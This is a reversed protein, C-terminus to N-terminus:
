SVLEAVAAVTKNVEELTNYHTPGVRVVGDEIPINLQQVVEYAYNHGNWVFINRDALGKAITQPDIRNHTFSVTPVREKLQNHGTAGYITIGDIAMLGDILAKTIDEEYQLSADMAMEIKKRRSANKDAGVEEGVWAYYDITATLGALLEIAPTGTEFKSPIETPACRVKYAHMNELLDRRGWLVGLHPGFFKYSSCVLFDCGLEQVSTLGHPAYQVADVYVLAGVEKAAATLSKVDNIMGTMNSAYNLALLKTKDSLLAKLDNVEIKWSDTSFELWKIVCGKDAAIELWPSVNGEHDMRTVIIEDGPKFDRAISRSMHFGLNTATQGIVIEGADDTGLFDAMAQHADEVVKGSYDSTRFMGGLNANAYVFAHSVADVVDQPVQTGAPNDFYVRDQGDDILSLAPFKARIKDVPFTM